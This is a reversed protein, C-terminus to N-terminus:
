RDELDRDALDVEEAAAEAYGDVACAVEAAVVVVAVVVVVVVDVRQHSVRRSHSSWELSM